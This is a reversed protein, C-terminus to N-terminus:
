KTPPPTSAWTSAGQLFVSTVLQGFRVPDPPTRGEALSALGLMLDSKDKFADGEADEAFAAMLGKVAEHEANLELTKRSKPVDQGMERMVQEMAAGMGGEAGVLIAPSDTLRASFRVGGVHEDLHTQVAELFDKHAEDQKARSDKEEDSELATDGQHIQHIPKEDFTKFRQLMWDDVPDSLLLVEQGKAKYAELHPSRALTDADLGTLVHISEQGEEMREVYEALTTTGSEHTTQFLCVKSIRNKTDDGQYIGEKLIAGFSTFFKAYGERDKKLREALLSVVKSTLHKKIKAMVPNAQLTQRSVNLPLDACDVVGRVFRLWPPLLDECEPMILVRKVYLALRSGRRPDQFFDYPKQAPAYLLARYEVPSEAHIHLHAYPANWDHSLHRYFEGHEDEQVEGRPRAWLPQQSNLTETKTVTKTEDDKPNGEDDLVPETSEVDTRIPWGVFDSHQKVVGRLVWPSTFDQSDEGEAAEKLHLTVRTGRPTEVGDHITYEGEAESTWVAGADEGLKRSAVVVKDAVMFSSYFGVGFQGILEPAQEAGASKLKEMFAKTGSRAITGLNEALEDRSMGIGNDIVSLTRADPDVELRIELEEDDGLISDDTLSAHRLKDLADSANSILERLFIDKQTYLSHIVLRLLDSTEAEFRRTDPAKASAM